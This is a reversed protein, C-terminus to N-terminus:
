GSTDVVEEEVDVERLAVDHDSGTFVVTHGLHGLLRLVPKEIHARVFNPVELVPLGESEDADIASILADFFASFRFKLVNRYGLNESLRGAVGFADYGHVLWIWLGLLDWIGICGHFIHHHM